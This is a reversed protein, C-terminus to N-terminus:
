KRAVVNFIHWFKKEDNALKKIKKEEVLELVQLGSLLDVVEAKTHFTMKTRPTNWQDETGFFQGVFIGGPLLSEKLQKWVKNFDNKNTFPLSYQANVLDFKFNSFPFDEFSYQIFEFKKSFRDYLDKPAREKDLAIVKDFGQAILFRSDKLAGAGLDLAAGKNKVFAIAKILLPSPPRKTTLNYYNQWNIKKM